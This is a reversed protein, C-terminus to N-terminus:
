EREDAMMLNYVDAGSCVVIGIVVVVGGCVVIGIVVDGGAVVVDVREYLSM